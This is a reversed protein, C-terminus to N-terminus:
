TKYLRVDDGPRKDWYENTLKDRFEGGQDDAVFTLVWKFSWNWSTGDEPFVKSTRKGKVNLNM